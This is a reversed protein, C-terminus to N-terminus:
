PFHDIVHQTLRVLSAHIATNSAVLVSRASGTSGAVHTLSGGAEALMLRGVAEDWQRLPQMLLGDARGCSIYAFDVASSGLIRVRQVVSELGGVFLARKSVGNADSSFVGFHIFSKLLDDVSSVGIREGNRYAGHGRLAVFTEQAVPIHIVGLALENHAQLGIVIGFIPNGRFYNASGDLPDLIWTYPEAGQVPESEESLLGFSPTMDRLYRLILHNAQRDANYQADLRSNQRTVYVADPRNLLYAGVRQAAETAITALESDVSDLQYQM